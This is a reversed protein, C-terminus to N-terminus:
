VGYRVDSRGLIEVIDHWQSWSDNVKEDSERATTLAAEYKQITATLDQNVEHSPPRDWVDHKSYERSFEADEEAEQDLIDFAKVFPPM